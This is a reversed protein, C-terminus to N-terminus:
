DRTQVSLAPDPVSMAQLRTVKAYNMGVIVLVIGILQLLTPQERLIIAAAAILLPRQIMAIISIRTAGVRNLATIFAVNALAASIGIVLAIVRADVPPQGVFPVMFLSILALIAFCMASSVPASMNDSIQEMAVRYVSSSLVATFLCVLGIPNVIFSDFELSMVIGIFALWFGLWFKPALVDRGLKQNFIAVLAPTTTVVTIVTVASLFKLAVFGCLSTTLLLLSVPIIRALDKWRFEKLNVLVPCLFLGAIVNRAAFLQLPTVTGRYGYKTLIPEISGVVLALAVWVTDRNPRNVL